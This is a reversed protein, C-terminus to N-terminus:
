MFALWNTWLTTEIYRNQVTEAGKTDRGLMDQLGKSVVVRCVKLVDLCTEGLMDERSFGELGGHPLFAVFNDELGANDFAVLDGDSSSCNLEVSSSVTVAFQLNRRVRMYGCM